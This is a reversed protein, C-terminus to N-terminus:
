ACKEFEMPTLYGLSSHLRNANYYVSIYERIDYIAQELTLYYNDGIWEQKLSGFFSETPANDWCNGKRSMSPTMGFQKLLRQYDYSAYQSGRDSHIILGPKPNRIGVAMLLARIVISKTMRKDTCWGIIKKSYMDIIVALYLWGQATWIYTIDSGWASNPKTPCFSRDLINDAVPLKHHSNTTAKYKRKLKVVLNMEKMLRMTKYRGIKFGLRNLMKTMRRSGISQRSETFLRKMERRFNLENKNYVRCSRHKKWDYYSSRRVEMVRCLVTVPFKDQEKLIFGYKM